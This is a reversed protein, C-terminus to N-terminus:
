QGAWGDFVVTTAREPYQSADFTYYNPREVYFDTYSQVQADTQMFCKYKHGAKRPSCDCHYWGDGLNVLNWWHDTAGNVRSVRMNQIGLRDMLVKYTAYYTFCDGARKYLGEYAGTWISTRDGASSSYAIKTRCWEWLVYAKEYNTMEPTTLQAILADAMPVIYAEDIAPREIIHLVTEVKAENGASDVASYYVPYNGIANINVASKDIVLEVEEDVNDTVVVNKKYTISDGIYVTIENVGSIVPAQSDVIESSIETSEVVEETESEVAEKTVNESVSGESVTSNELTTETETVSEIVTTAEAGAGKAAYANGCATLMLCGAIACLWIKRKM